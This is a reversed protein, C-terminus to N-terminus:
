DGDVDIKLAVSISRHYGKEANALDDAYNEGFESYILAALRYVSAHVLQSPALIQNDSVLQRFRNDSQLDRLIIQAVHLEQTEWSTKGSEFQTKVATTNLQPYLAGLDSDTNFKYGAYDWATTASLDASFSIRVWYLDYIEMTELGSGTMDDTDDRSWSEDKDVKWSVYGNQALTATSVKTEDIVDVCAVWEDGDWASVSITSAASNVASMRIYRQNFPGESGIYIYDQAAVLATTFTGANPNNLEVSMDKLVGNDGWIIRNTLIGM